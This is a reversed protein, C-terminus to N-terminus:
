SLENTPYSIYFRGLTIIWNASKLLSKYFSIKEISIFDSEDLEPYYGEHFPTNFKRFEELGCSKALKPLINTNYTEVSFAQQIDEKEWEYGLDIVDGGIYYMTKGDGKMTYTDKLKQMVTM